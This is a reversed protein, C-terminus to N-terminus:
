WALIDVLPQQFEASPAPIPIEGPKNVIKNITIQFTADATKSGGLSVDFSYTGEVLAGGTGMFIGKPNVTMGAPPFRGGAPIGWSYSGFPTGGYAMLTQPAVIYTTTGDADVQIYADALTWRTDITLPITLKPKTSTTTMTTTTLPTTTLTTTVTTQELKNREALAKQTIGADKSISVAKNFDAMALDNQKLSEYALGRNYYTNEDQPDLGIAITYDTIAQSYQKKFHYAIGRGAYARAYNPDLDIADSYKAIAADYNGALSLDNADNVLKEVQGQQYVSCGSTIGPALFVGAIMIVILLTKLHKM